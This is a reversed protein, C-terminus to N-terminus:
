VQYEDEELDDKLLRVFRVAHAAIDQQSVVGPM